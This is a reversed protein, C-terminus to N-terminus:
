LWRENIKKENDLKDLEKQADAIASTDAEYVWGVGERWVKKKENQANELKIKAEILKNEYERQSNIEELASKQEELANQQRQLSRDIANQASQTTKEYEAAVINDINESAKLYNEFYMDWIAEAGAAAETGQGFKNSKLANYLNNLSSKDETFGEQELIQFAAQINADNSGALKEYIGAGSASGQSWNELSKRGIEAFNQPIVSSLYSFDKEGLSTAMDGNASIIEKLSNLSIQLFM